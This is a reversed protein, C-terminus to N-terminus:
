GPPLRTKAIKITEDFLEKPLDNGFTDITYESTEDSYFVEMLMAGNGDVLELYMGDRQVDSGVTIKTPLTINM